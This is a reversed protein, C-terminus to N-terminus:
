PIIHMGDVLLSMLFVILIYIYIPYEHSGEWPVIVCGVQFFLFIMMKLLAKKKSESINTGLLTCRGFSCCSKLSWRNIIVVGVGWSRDGFQWVQSNLLFNRLNSTKKKPQCIQCIEHCQDDRFFLLIYIDTYILIYLYKISIFIFACYSCIYVYESIVFLFVYMLWDILHVFIHLWWAIIMTALKASMLMMLLFSANREDAQVNFRCM